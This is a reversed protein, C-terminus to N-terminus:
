FDVAKDFGLAIRAAVRLNADSGRYKTAFFEVAKKDIALLEGIYKGKHCGSTVQYRKADEM